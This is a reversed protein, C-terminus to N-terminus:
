AGCQRMRNWVAHLTERPIEFGVRASGIENLLVFRPFGAVSKKDVAMARCLSDWEMAPFDLPLNWIRLLSEIRALEPVPFCNCEASLMAAYRMGIAVAEGHLLVGYGAANEIAHGLTHGFNLIGRLGSEREDQRVVDAKLECCRAIVGSLSGSSVSFLDTGIEELRRFFAADCILGYKIVEAMGAAIERPSLTSLTGTDMVVAEPQHFAGVLNKGAPINIGTKGGVSSDVMALLTTPVQVFRTGRLWSAAAFGTIDGVVGGGLAVWFSGRDLGHGAAACYLRMLQEHGKTTEGAPLIEIAPECGANKLSQVAREAYLPAVNADSVVLCRGRLGREVCREGLSDLIGSGIAIPYTRAGLDVQVNTTSM